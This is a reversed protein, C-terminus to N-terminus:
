RPAGDRSLVETEDYLADLARLHTRWHKRAVAINTSLEAQAQAALARLAPLQAQVTDDDLAELEAIVHQLTQAFSMSLDPM